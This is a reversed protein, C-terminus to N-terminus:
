ELGLIEKVNPHNGKLINLKKDRMDYSKRILDKIDNDLESINM